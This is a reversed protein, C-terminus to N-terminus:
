SRFGFLAAIARIISDFVGSAIWGIFALTGGCALVALSIKLSTTLTSQPQPITSTEKDYSQTM